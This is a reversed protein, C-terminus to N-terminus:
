SKWKRNGWDCNNREKERGLRCGQGSGAGVGLELAVPVVLM